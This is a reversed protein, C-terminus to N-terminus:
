RYRKKAVRQTTVEGSDVGVLVLVDRGPLAFVYSPEKVSVAEARMLLVGSFPDVYGARAKIRIAKALGMPIPLPIIKNGLWANPSDTPVGFRGRRYDLFISRRRGGPMPRAFDFRWRTVQAAHTALKRVPTGDAFLFECTPYDSLVIRNASKLLTLFPPMSM